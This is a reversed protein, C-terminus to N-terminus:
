KGHWTKAWRHMAFTTSQNAFKSKICTSTDLYSCPYFTDSYLANMGNKRAADTWVPPGSILPSYPYKKGTRSQDNLVKDTNVFSVALAEFVAPNQPKLGIVATCVFKCRNWPVVLDSAPSQETTWNSGLEDVARMALMPEECITFNDLGLLLPDLPRIPVVDTDVYVGGFRLLIAYRALNSVWSMPGGIRAILPLLEPFEVRLKENTWLSINWDPHIKKWDAINGVVEDTPTSEAYLNKSVHVFHLTKPITTKTTRTPARAEPELVYLSQSLVLEDRLLATLGFWLIFALLTNSRPTFQSNFSIM